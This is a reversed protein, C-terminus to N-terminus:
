MDEGASGDEEAAGEADETNDVGAGSHTSALDFAAMGQMLLADDVLATRVATVASTDWSTKFRRVMDRLGAAQRAAYADLGARLAVSIQERRAGRQEEWWLAKWRLFRLVRKMEERLLQVEEEWREKRAKAKSWEVRVSDHLGMEDEGPGGAATWIWSLRKEKSSLAPGQQRFRKSGINGLKRRARADVDREEDLQIDAAKLERWEICQQAGRLAILAKRAERYKSAEADVREGVREFLTNARTAARQGVVGADRWDVLHKKTHLQSRLVQLSDRCQGERLLEEKGVLGPRCGAERTARRLGSPLFILVDEAKAPPLEPDRQDEEAELEKVAGPMYVAQLKRFKGLKTFFAVRMDALKQSHDAALLTRGKVERRVRRQAGELQLGATLFSTVSSGHLRAGGTSAEKAEEQTLELRIAAESQGKDGELVYPNPKTPDAVWEDIRKQWEARLEKKLTRDVEKFAEVQRDREDIALILKKPLTTGQNINKEFNHHDIKDELADERAGLGMEKTAWGLPNLDSWTREIGEGDTRGAGVMYSLSNQAQCEREHAAAHWVPLGCRVTIEQLNLKMHDPMDTMRSEWNIRWQCAIDYSIALYLATIGLVASLIIYDM